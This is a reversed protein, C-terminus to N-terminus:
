NPYRNAITETANEHDDFFYGIAAVDHANRAIPRFFADDVFYALEYRCRYCM